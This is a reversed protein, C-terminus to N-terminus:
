GRIFGPGVPAHWVQGEWRQLTPTQIISQIHRDNHGHDMANYREYKARVDEQRAYGLHMIRLPGPDGFPPRTAYTPESGSGMAKDSFKGNPQWRFLRTGRVKGWWGDTRVLPWGDDPDIGFCEPIPVLIANAGGANRIAARIADWSRTGDTTCIIEDCDISLIWDGPEPKVRRELWDYADQRFQGEHKLFSPRGEDRIYASGLISSAISATEDTSQDDYFSFTDVADKNTQLATYIYRDQENRGVTLGHVRM